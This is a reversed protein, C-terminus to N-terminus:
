GHREHASSGERTGHFDAKRVSAYQKQVLERFEGARNEFIQALREFVSHNRNRAGLGSELKGGAEGQNGGHIGTGTSVRSVGFFKTGARRGGDHFILSFNGTGNEVPNVNVGFYRPHLEFFQGVHFNSLFAGFDALADGGGAFPLKGSEFIDVSNDRIALHLIAFYFFEALESFFLHRKETLRDIRKVQAGASKM